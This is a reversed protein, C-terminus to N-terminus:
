WSTMVQKSLTGHHLDLNPRESDPDDALFRLWQGDADLLLGQGDLSQVFHDPPQTWVAADVGSGVEPSTVTQLGDLSSALLLTGPEVSRDDQPPAPACGMGVVMLAIPLRARM